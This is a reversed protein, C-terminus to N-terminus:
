QLRLGLGVIIQEGVPYKYVNLLSYSCFPVLSVNLGNNFKYGISPNLGIRFGYKGVKSTNIKTPQIGPLIAHYNILLNGALGADLVFFFKRTGWKKGVNFFLQLYNYYNHSTCNSTLLFSDRIGNSVVQSKLSNSGQYQLQEHLPLFGLGLTYRIQNVQYNVHFEFNLNLTWKASFSDVDNIPFGSLFSYIGLGASWKDSLSNFININNLLKFKRSRSTKNKDLQFRYLTDTLRITDPAVFITDYEYEVTQNITDANVPKNNNVQANASNSVIIFGLGFFFHVFLRM